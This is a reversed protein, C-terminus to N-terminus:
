DREPPVFVYQNGGELSSQAVTKRRTQDNV